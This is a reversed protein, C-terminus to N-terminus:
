LLVVHLCHMLGHLIKTLLGLISYLYTTLHVSVVNTFSVPSSIDATYPIPRNVPM